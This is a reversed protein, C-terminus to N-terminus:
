LGSQVTKSQAHSLEMVALEIALKKDIRGTKMQYDTEALKDMMWNLQQVSYSRAQDSAVKVAYPHLGLQGAMQRNTYGHKSMEKVQLIIRFQRAILMLIKIPEERRNLLEQYISLARSINQRVIEEVLMFINQEVTRVTLQEIMDETIAREEGAYLSLKELEAALHQLNTGANMILANAATEKLECSHQSAQKMVWQRLTGSDMAPFLVVADKKKLQKVVKKREDLKDAEVIFIMITFSAPEKIYDALRNLNHEVKQKDRSATLLAAHDAVILKKGAMFPLTEADEICAEISTERLDYHSVAFDREEASIFQKVAYEVFQNMLYRETGLCVYIPKHNGASIHKVAARYDLM